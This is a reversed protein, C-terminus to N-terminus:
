QARERSGMSWLLFGDVVLSYGGSVAILFLQSLLSSVSCPFTFLYITIKKMVKMSLAFMQANYDIRRM